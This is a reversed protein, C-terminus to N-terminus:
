PKAWTVTIDPTAATVIRLGNAIKIDYQYTGEVVSAKLTGVLTTNAGNGDYITIAGAATTNVIINHLLGKGTFVVTTAVGAINTYEYEKNDYM